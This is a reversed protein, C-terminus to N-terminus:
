IRLKTYNNDIFKKVLELAEPMNKRGYGIRFHNEPSKLIDSM